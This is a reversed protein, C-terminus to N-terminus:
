TKEFVHVIKQAPDSVLFIKLFIETLWFFYGRDLRFFIKELFNIKPRLTFVDFIQTKELRVFIQFHDFM